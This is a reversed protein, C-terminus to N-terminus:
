LKSPLVLLFMGWHELFVVGGLGTGAYTKIGKVENRYKYFSFTKRATLFYHSTVSLM